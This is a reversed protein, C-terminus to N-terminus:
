TDKAVPSPTPAVKGAAVSQIDAMRILAAKGGTQVFVVSKKKANVKKLLGQIELGQTTTLVVTEGEFAEFIDPDVEAHAVSFCFLLAIAIGRRTWQFTGFFREDRRFEEASFPRDTLM